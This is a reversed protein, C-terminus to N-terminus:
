ETLAGARAAFADTMKLIVKEFAKSAAAQLLPNRFEFAISFDIRGGDGEPVFCWRNELLRFPGKIAVVNITRANPDLTICSTYRERFPGFGVAMEATLGNEERSLIRLAMVWPLFEPYREVDAVIRYMLDAGYPM